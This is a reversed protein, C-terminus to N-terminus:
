ADGETSQALLRTLFEPDVPKVLHADFGAELARRRDEAQGYGTMAILRRPYGKVKQIDRLKRAVGYGDLGPLGIDVLAVDYEHGNGAVEVAVQGDSAVTVEHGELELLEKLTERIDPNDEVVLIRLPRQNPTPLQSNPTESESEPKPSGVGLELSGVSMPITVIFESGRGVGESRALVEGGHMQVLRKVLTLGIGLGGAARDSAHEAQVFLEFVRPLMESRIGIGTDRVRVVVEEEDREVNVTIQGKPNTYKAANNVLNAVVQTMRTVDIFVPLPEDPVEVVLTHERELLAPRAIQLAHEIVSQMTTDERRLEIKGQTIRSVDLLDDVLRILHRVQRDMTAHARSMADGRAGMEVGVVHLANVIPALPNRLEHALMALFEDKRRSAEELRAEAQRREAIEVQLAGYLSATAFAIAARAAVEDLLAACLPTIEGDIWLGGLVRDAHVLPLMQLAGDVFTAPRARADAPAELAGRLLAFHASPLASPSLEVSAADGDFLSSRTAAHTVVGREDVLAVTANAALAPVVHALLAHIGERLDLVGSLSHSLGALLSSRQTSEEALRLAAESAALAVREEAQRAIRRQLIHLEVFVRVKSRLVEPVVPSPIYDVAGLSYGRATQM